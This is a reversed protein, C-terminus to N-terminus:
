GWGEARQIARREYLFEFLNGEHPQDWEVHSTPVPGLNLRDVHHSRQLEALLDSDRTIATVVLSPGMDEVLRDAPVQVVSTFPFLFETRALPHDVSDCHVVTPLLYSAGDLTRARDGDRHAATADRAGGAALGEDIRADIFEAFKPNAFASLTAGEDAAPRPARASLEAALANAIEEAHATVFISSANVCSRGGNDAVSAALVPLFERWDDAVDPGIVVKSRGPGHIEVRPDHSWAKTVAEDGFLQTRGCRELIVGSGEHDTPYFSFAERPCGAALFAQMIRLPTWPEERGPKLVVPIGLAVAPMWISNVGPSNSPLIVGLANTTPAYHVPMNGHHGFGTDVVSPDMGRTLGRLIDAMGDFVTLIKKMNRRVLVHPLGSTRSLTAVYEDPTQTAGESNLSLTGTMFHEGAAKCIALLQETSLERLRAAARDQKRLDRKILGANAQSIRALVEGNNRLENQDLSSYETGQRLVPIHPADTM